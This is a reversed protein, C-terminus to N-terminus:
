ELIEHVIEGAQRGVSIRRIEPKQTDLIIPM